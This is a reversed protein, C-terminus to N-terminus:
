PAAKDVGVDLEEVDSPMRMMSRSLVRTTMIRRCFNSSSRLSGMVV